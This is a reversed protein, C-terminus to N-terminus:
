TGQTSRPKVDRDRGEGGTLVPDNGDGLQELDPQRVAHDLPPDRASPKMSDVVAHVGDTM